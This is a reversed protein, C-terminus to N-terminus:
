NNVKLGTEVPHEMEKVQYVIRASRRPPQTEVCVNDAPHHGTVKRRTKKQSHSNALAAAAKPIGLAKAREINIAINKNREIEYDTIM